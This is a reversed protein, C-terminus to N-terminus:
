QFSGKGHFSAQVTIRSMCSHFELTLLFSSPKHTNEVEGQVTSLYHGFGLALQRRSEFRGWQGAMM